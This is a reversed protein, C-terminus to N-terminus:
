ACSTETNECLVIRGTGDIDDLLFQNYMRKDVEKKKSKGDTNDSACSLLRLNVM